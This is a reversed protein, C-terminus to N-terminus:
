ANASLRLGDSCCSRSLLFFAVAVDSRIPDARAGENPKRGVGAPYRDPKAPGQGGEMSRAAKASGQRTIGQRGSSPEGTFCPPRSIGNTCNGAHTEYLM